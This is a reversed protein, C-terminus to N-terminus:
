IKVVLCLLVIIFVIAVISFTLEMQSAWLPDWFRDNSNNEKNKELTRQERNNLVYNILNHFVILVFAISVSLNLINFAILEKPFIKKLNNLLLDYNIILFFYYAFLGAIIYYRNRVCNEIAPYIRGSLISRRLNTNPNSKTQLFIFVLLWGTLFTVALGCIIYILPRIM